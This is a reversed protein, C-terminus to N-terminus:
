NFLLKTCTYTYMGFYTICTHYRIHTNEVLHKLSNQFLDGWCFPRCLQHVRL